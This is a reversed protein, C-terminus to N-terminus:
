PDLYKRCKKKGNGFFRGLPNTVAELCATYVEEHDIEERSYSVPTGNENRGLLNQAVANPTWYGAPVLKYYCDYKGYSTQEPYVAAKFIREVLDTESAKIQKCNGTKTFYTLWETVSLPKTIAGPFGADMVWAKGKENVVPSVHYWWTISGHQGSKATYFLFIKSSDVDHAKKMDYAWVHARNSCISQGVKILTRDMSTFLKERTLGRSSIDNMKWDYDPIGVVQAHLTTTLLILTLALLQM